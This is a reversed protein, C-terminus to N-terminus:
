PYRSPIRSRLQALVPRQEPDSRLTQPPQEREVRQLIPLNKDYGLGVFVISLMFMVCALLFVGQAFRGYVERVTNRFVQKAEPNIPRSKDDLYLWMETHRPNKRGAEFAKVLLISAMGLAMVAGARFAIAPNFSFSLMVLSIALWGFLVARGVCMMAVQRFKEM